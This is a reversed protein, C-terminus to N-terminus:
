SRLNTKLMMATTVPAETLCFRGRRMQNIMRTAVQGLQEKSGRRVRLERGRQEGVGPRMEQKDHRLDEARHRFFGVKWM